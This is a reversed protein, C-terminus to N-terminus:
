FFQFIFIFYHFKYFIGENQHVFLIELCRKKVLNNVLATFKKVPPIEWAYQAENQVVM